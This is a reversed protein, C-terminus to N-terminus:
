VGCEEERGIKQVALFCHTSAFHTLGHAGLDHTLGRGRCPQFFSLDDFVCLWLGNRSHPLYFNRFQPQAYRQEDARHRPSDEWLTSYEWLAPLLKATRNAHLQAPASTRSLANSFTTCRMVGWSMRKLSNYFSSCQLLISTQSPSSTKNFFLLNNERSQVLLAFHLQM